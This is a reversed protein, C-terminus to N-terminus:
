RGNRDRRFGAFPHPSISGHGTSLATCIRIASPGAISTASNRAPRRSHAAPGGPQAGHM